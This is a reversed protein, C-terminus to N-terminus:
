LLLLKPKDPASTGKNETGAGLPDIMVATTRATKSAPLRVMGEAANAWVEGAGLGAGAGAAGVPGAGGTVVEGGGFGDATM